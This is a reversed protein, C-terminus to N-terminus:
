IAPNGVYATALLATLGIGIKMAVRRREGSFVRDYGDRM